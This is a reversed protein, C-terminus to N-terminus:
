STVTKFQPYKTEFEIFEAEPDIEVSTDKYKMVLFKCFETMVWLSRGALMPMNSLHSMLIISVQATRM